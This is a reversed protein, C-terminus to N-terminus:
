FDYICGPAVDGANRHRHLLPLAGGGRLGGRIELRLPIRLPACPHAHAFVGRGAGVFPILHFVQPVILGLAVCLAAFVLDKIKQNM